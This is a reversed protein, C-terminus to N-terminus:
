RTRFLSGGAIIVQVLTLGFIAITYWLLRRNLSAATKDANEIATRLRRLMEINAGQGQLGNNAECVLEEDTRKSFGFHELAM